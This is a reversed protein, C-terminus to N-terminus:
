YTQSVNTVTSINLTQLYYKSGIVKLLLSLFLFANETNSPIIYSYDKQLASKVYQIM